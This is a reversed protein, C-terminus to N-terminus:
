KENAEDGVVYEYGVLEGSFKVSNIKVKSKKNLKIFFGKERNVDWSNSKCLRKLLDSSEWCASDRFFGVVDTSGKINMLFEKKCGLVKFGEKLLMVRTIKSEGEIYCKYVGSSLSSLIPKDSNGLLVSKKFRCIGKFCIM